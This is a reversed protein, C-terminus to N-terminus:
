RIQFHKQAAQLYACYACSESFAPISESQLCQYASLVATEVWSDDGHYALISVDFILQRDFSDLDKKGNCYVFYATNSVAFGNKRLLWQYIEAQRKYGIQWDADLTVKESKSTAKYDVVMLENTKPDIWIDDVGGQLMLNTGPVIYQVGAHLSDQWLAIDDHKFPIVEISNEICLPHPTQQERHKNFERKLLEDVALNLSFTYGPPQEIGLKRDLYFCRACRLFLELKSRSIKFPKPELPNYLNAVRQGRYNSLRKARTKIAMSIGM